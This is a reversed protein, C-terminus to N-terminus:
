RSKVRARLMTILAALAPTVHRRSPYYLQYGPSPPCWKTLVRVLRGAEVHPAVEDDYFMSLGIGDIAARLGLEGDNAIFPGDVKVHLTRGDRELEWPFLGGTRQVRYSFCRHHVLDRPTKPPPHKAFYSPAGVVVVKLPPGVTVAIMDKDIKDPWRIGADYRHAVIDTLGNDIDVEVSISPHEELFRPLVPMIVSAAAHKFTTIRVTGSPKDRLTGLATLEADIDRFAPHLTALLREGAVTTAVSRTTRALLQLGLRTELGKMAHSLASPSMGLKAAARTFSKEDAIAVFAQLDNLEDRKM